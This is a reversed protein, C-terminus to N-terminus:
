RQYYHASHDRPSSACNFHYNRVTLATDSFDSFVGDVGLQFFLEYEKQSNGQIDRPLFFDENRFTWVHVLLNAQHADEILSTPSRLQNHIDRPIILNKNVGIAKTYKAIEQFGSPTILDDYTRPDGNITFDHPKGLDNVLQVLPLATKEALKKLNSVEFSQIFIPADADEYGYASLIQLLNDELALGLSRFYSPHKTEPYIGIIRGTQHNKDTVLDLIEAFTPITFLHNYAINQPRLEPIREKVRLNKLEILTFDETFWGHQVEGDVVKTTKRDAFEPYNAIDTTQSIENEHRAILIGDKTSVLDPEIYDAGLDIALEYAALTHEPRYGSAGRHAIIIPYKVSM